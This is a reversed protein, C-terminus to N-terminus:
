RYRIIIQLGTSEELDGSGFSYSKAQSRSLLVDKDEQEPKNTEEKAFAVTHGALLEQAITETMTSKFSAPLNAIQEKQRLSLEFREDMWRDFDTQLLLMSGALEARSQSLEAAQVLATGSSNLQKKM